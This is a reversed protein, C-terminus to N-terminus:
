RGRKEVRNIIWYGVQVVIYCIFLSLISNLIVSGFAITRYPWVGFHYLEIAKMVLFALVVPIIVIFPEIDLYYRPLWKLVLSCVVSGAIFMVWILPPAVSGYFVSIALVGFAGIVAARLFTARVAIVSLLVMSPVIPIFLPLYYYINFVYYVIYDLIVGLVILLIPLFIDRRKNRNNIITSIFAKGGLVALGVLSAVIITGYQLIALWPM